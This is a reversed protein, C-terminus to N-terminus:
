DKMGNNDEAKLQKVYWIISTVTDFLLMVVFCGGGLFIGFLLYEIGNLFTNGQPVIWRDSGVLYFVVATILANLILWIAKDRLKILFKDKWGKTQFSYLCYLGCMLIPIGFAFYTEINYVGNEELADAGTFLAWSLISCILILLLKKKM